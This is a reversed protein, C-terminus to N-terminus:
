IMQRRNEQRLFREDKNQKQLMLWEL